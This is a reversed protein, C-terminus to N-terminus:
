DGAKVLGTGAPDLEKTMGQLGPVQFSDSLFHRYYGLIGIEEWGGSLINSLLLIDRHFLNNGCGFLGIGM